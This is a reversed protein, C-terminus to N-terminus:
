YPLYKLTINITPIQHNQYHPHPQSTPLHTIILTVGDGCVVLCVIDDVSIACWADHRQYIIAQFGGLMYSVREM